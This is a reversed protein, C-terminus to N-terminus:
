WLTHTGISKQKARVIVAQNEEILNVPSSGMNARLDVILKARTAKKSIIGSTKPANV